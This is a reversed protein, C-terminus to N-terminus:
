IIQLSVNRFVGNVMNQFISSSCQGHAHLVSSDRYFLMVLLFGTIEQIRTMTRHSNHAGARSDDAGTRSDHAGTRSASILHIARSAFRRRVFHIPTMLQLTM